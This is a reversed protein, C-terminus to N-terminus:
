HKYITGRDSKGYNSSRFASYRDSSRSGRAGDLCDAVMSYGINFKGMRNATPRFAPYRNIFNGPNGPKMWVTPQNDNIAMM